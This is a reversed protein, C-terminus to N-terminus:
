LTTTFVSDLKIDIYRYICQHLSSSMLPGKNKGTWKGWGEREGEADGM